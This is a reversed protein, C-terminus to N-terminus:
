QIETEPPPLQFSTAEEVATVGPVTLLDAGLDHLDRTSTGSIVGIIDSVHTISLGRNRLETVVSDITDLHEEDVTITVEAM